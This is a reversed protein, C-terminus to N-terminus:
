RARDLARRRPPPVALDDDPRRRVGFPRLPDFLGYLLPRASPGCALHARAPYRASSRSAAEGASRRQPRTSRRIRRVHFRRPANAGDIVVGCSLITFAPACSCAPLRRLKRDDPGIPLIPWPFHRRAIALDHHIRSNVQWFVILPYSLHTKERNQVTAMRDGLRSEAAPHDRRR